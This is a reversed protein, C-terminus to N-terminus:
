SGNVGDGVHLGNTVVEKAGNLHTEGKEPLLPVAISAAEETAAGNHGEGDEAPILAGLNDKTGLYYSLDQGEYERINFGNGFFGFPNGSLYEIHYDDYRPQALVDFYLLRSGPWIALPGDEKGQKFWSRCGSTWATRKLFLDAHDVFAECVDKRPAMSKLDQTQFRKIITIFHRMLLEIIPLFSGHGLPGYAGTVTWYNPVPRTLVLRSFNLLNGYRSV